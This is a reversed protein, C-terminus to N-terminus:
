ETLIERRLESNASGSLPGHLRVPKIEDGSAAGM